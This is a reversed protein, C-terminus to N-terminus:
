AAIRGCHRRVNHRLRMPAPAPCPLAVLEAVVVLMRQEMQRCREVLGKEIQWAQRMAEALYARGSGGFRHAALKASMWAKTLIRSLNPRHRYSVAGEQTHFLRLHTPMM